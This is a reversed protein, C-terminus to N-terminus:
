YASKLFDLTKGMILCLLDSIKYNAEHFRAISMKKARVKMVEDTLKITLPCFIQWLDAASLRDDKNSSYQWVVLQIDRKTMKLGHKQFFAVLQSGDASKHSEGVVHNWVLERTLVPMNFLEEKLGVMQTVGPCVHTEFQHIAKCLEAIEAQLSM